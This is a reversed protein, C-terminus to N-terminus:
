SQQESFKEYLQAYEIDLADYRKKLVFYQENGQQIQELLTVIQTESKLLETKMRSIQDQMQTTLELQSVVSDIQSLSDTIQQKLQENKKNLEAEKKQLIKLEEKTEVSSAELERAIEDLERLRIEITELEAQTITVRGREAKLSEKAIILAKVNEKLVEPQILQSQLAAIKETLERKKEIENNLNEEIEGTGSNFGKSYFFLGAAICVALGIGLILTFFGM